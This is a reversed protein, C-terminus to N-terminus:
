IVTWEVQFGNKVVSAIHGNFYLHEISFLQGQYDTEMHTEDVIRKIKCSSLGKMGVGAAKLVAEKATWFRFFDVHPDAGSLRWESNSAIKRFLADSVEKIREIDIGTPASALVAGVYDLKHTLSWYNGEFPLPVGKPDKLLEGLRINKKGASIELAQRAYRSLQTVRDRGKLFRANEPVSLIVPHICNSQSGTSETLNM